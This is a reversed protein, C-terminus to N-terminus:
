QDTRLDKLASQVADVQLQLLHLMLLWCFTMTIVPAECPM